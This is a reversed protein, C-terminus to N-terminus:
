QDAPSPPQDEGVTPNLIHWEAEHLRCPGTGPVHKPTMLDNTDKTNHSLCLAHGTEHATDWPQGNLSLDTNNRVYEAKGCHSVTDIVTFGEVTHPNIDKVYSVWIDNQVGGNNSIYSKIVESETGSGQSNQLAGDNDVDYHISFGQTPTVTFFINAYKGLINQLETSVDAAAPANGVLPQNPDTVAYLDLTAQIQAKVAVRLTAQRNGNADYVKIRALGPSSGGNITFTTNNGTPASPTFTVTSTDSNLTYNQWAGKIKLIVNNAGNVPVVLIGPAHKGPGPKGDFGGCRTVSADKFHAKVEARFANAKGSTTMWDSVTDGDTDDADVLDSIVANSTSSAWLTGDPGGLYSLPSPFGGGVLYPGLTSDPSVNGNTDIRAAGSVVGSPNYATVILGGDSTAAVPTGYIQGTWGGWYTSDLPIRWAEVGTALNMAVLVDGCYGTSSSCGDQSANFYLLGTNGLIWNGPSTGSSQFTLGTASDRFFITGSLATTGEGVQDFDTGELWVTVTGGNGDPLNAGYSTFTYTGLLGHVSSDLVVNTVSNASLTVLHVINALVSTINSGEEYQFQASGDSLISVQGPGAERMGPDLSIVYSLLVQGSASSLEQVSYTADQAEALIFVNGQGDVAFISIFGTRTWEPLGNTGYFKTITSQVSIHDFGPVVFDGNEDAAAQSFYLTPLGQLPQQWIVGNDYSVGYLNSGDTYVIDPGTGTKALPLAPGQQQGSLQSAWLVNAPTIVNVPTSAQYGQWATRLTTTGIGAGTVSNDTTDILAITSDDISWTAGTVPMGNQDVVSLSQRGGLTITPGDPVISIQTPNPLALQIPIDTNSGTAVTVRSVPSPVYGSAVASVTYTGIPVLSFSFNGGNDTISSQGAVGQVTAGPVPSGSSTVTGSISGYSLVTFQLSSSQNGGAVVAIQHSGPTSPAQLTVQTSTWSTATIAQGDILVANGSTGNAGFYIGSITLLGNPTIELPALTYIQPPTLVSFPLSNSSQGSVQVTVGGSAAASPILFYVSTPDTSTVQNGTIQLNGFNVVTQQGSASLNQGTIQVLAGVAASSPNLTSITPAPATVTFSAGNSAFGSVTVVVNGTTAGSPVPVVISNSAWSTPSAPSGNFAVTSSGQGSGFTTGAITVSTGIPGSAPSLSTIYPTVTFAVGNSAIGSVNIVVNGATAGAPVTAVISGTSWSSITAAAGNFAVTSTGQTAGFNTGTISVTSGVPGATPSLDSINPNVIFNIANSWYGGQYVQVTGSGAGAAVAAVIQTNTWNVVSAYASGIWVKSTGQSAGFGTGSITVQTGPMGNTPSASSINLASVAFPVTNSFVTYQKVYASGSQSGTPVVGVIQTDSWSVVNQVVGGLVALGTGQSAGFGSGTITVQTGAPGNPPNVGTISPATLTIPFSNSTVGNQVLWVSGPLTGAIVTAVIQTDSWSVITPQTAQSGLYVHGSGQTPGFGSGSITIQTGISLTTPTVSTMTPPAMTISLGNSNVGYHLIWANGPLTGTAVTAVIQTDGWNVINAATAASGLRVSGSGQTAGFGSGTITVQGGITLRTPTVSNVTAPSMNFPIQNSSRGGTTVTVFGSIAASAVTAVIQTESWSVVSGNLNGLRVAGSGQTTGFGSGNVAVQMGPVGSAPSVSTVNASPATSTFPLANGWVGNQYVKAFGGASSTAVTAVIQTDSWSNVTANLSGLQIQGSGQSAGFGSGTVTIQTGGAGSSPSVSAVTPPIMSFLVSNTYIGGETVSVSGGGAGSAVTAMIQTDSWSNVVGVVSGLTVTSSGQTAGFGSGTVTVQTGPVGSTPTVNTITAPIVYFPLGNGSVSNQTVLATSTGWGPVVTAVIQPDSWSTVSANSSVLRVTGSGRAAGFGSGALTVQTGPVGSTPSLSTLIPAAISFWVGNSTGTQTIRVWGGSAGSALTAVVQTNSWSVVVGNKSGLVITGSGQTAGFGTGTITVQTGPVGSPPSINTIQPAQAFLVTSIFVSLFVPLIALSPRTAIRV